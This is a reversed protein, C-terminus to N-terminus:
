NFFMLERKGGHRKKKRDEEHKIFYLGYGFASFKDKLVTRSSQKLIINQGENEEVLNCMQEKLITTLVFPKLRENRQDISLGQGVKTELLRAKADREDILLKVKGQTMQSQVYTYIETNIPANAKILFVADREMDDTRYKKYFGEDDNMIGFPVLTDGTEPDIQAKVMYDILGHGIGNGDIACARAKYKYYLKKIVIAQDEFHTDNYSFLNVVSKIAPGVAQPTVKIVVIETSCGKRGVDVGLVYYANKSARGSHELEPQLLQRCKDFVEASFFANETDGSWHSCYEREFSQENFTDSMKLDNVFSESLLGEAVPVKYTGGIVFVRDPDLISEILMEILKEYAFSNKYGATTIWIQSKNIVEKPCRSGDPLLRDVNTTPIIIENLITKDMLIAEEIIGATRRQGRSSERAALINIKSSNKYQYEVDDKSKKTKGREWNVENALEPLLRCIEELKALTISAAQEKGGTSVFLECNPYLIARWKEGLVSLFSKSWARPFTGYVKNYRLVIRLFIRQYFYFKFNNEPNKLMDTAIDPYARFFAIMKRLEPLCDRVRQETIKKRSKDSLSNLEMLEKLTKAM